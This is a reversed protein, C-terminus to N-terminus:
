VASTNRMKRVTLYMLLTFVATLSMATGTFLQAGLYSGSADLIAGAIPPGILSSIGKLVAVCGLRTGLTSLDHTISSLVVPALTVVSSSFFGYLVAFALNGAQNQVSIWYFDVAATVACIALFTAIVGYRDAVVSPLLRGPIAAMNLIVLLYQALSPPTGHAEAYSVLYYLPQFFALNSFFIAVCQILYRRDLLAADHALHHLGALSWRAASTGGVAVVVVPARRLRPQAVATAASCLVLAVGGIARMTWAYGIRPQLRAFMLPYLSAGMSSGISAVGMALARHRAFYSPVLTIAPIYLCGAGIGMCFGQALLVQYYTTALSAMMCGFVLLFTGTVLMSRAYGLDFLPGFFFGGAMLLFVQVSGIWSIASANQDALLGQEYYTQFAGFGNLLGLSNWYLLFAAGVQLWAQFGGDPAPDHPLGPTLPASETLPADQPTDDLPQQQEQPQPQPQSQPTTNTEVKKKNVPTDM